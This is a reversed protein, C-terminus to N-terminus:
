NKFKSAKQRALALARSKYKRQLKEKTQKYLDKHYMMKKYLPDDKKRALSVGITGAAAKTKQLKGRRITTSTYSEYLFNLYDNIKIM